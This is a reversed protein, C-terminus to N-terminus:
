KAAEREKQISAIPLSFLNTDDCGVITKGGNAIAIVHYPSIYHADDDTGFPWRQGNRDILLYRFGPRDGGRPQAVAFLFADSSWRVPPYDKRMQWDDIAKRPRVFRFIDRQSGSGDPVLAVYTGNGGDAYEYLHIPTTGTRVLEGGDGTFAVRESLYAGALDKKERTLLNFRFGEWTDPNGDQGQIHLRCVVYQEDPSWILDVFRDQPIIVDFRQTIEFNEDTTVLQRTDIEIGLFHDSTTSPILYDFPTVRPNNSDVQWILPIQSVTALVYKWDRTVHFYKFNRIKDYADCVITTIHSIDGSLSVYYVDFTETWPRETKQTRTVYYVGDQSRGWEIIPFEVWDISNERHFQGINTKSAPDNFDSRAARFEATTMQATATDPINALKTPPGSTVSSVWISGKSIYTIRKDDPLVAISGQDRMDWVMDPDLLTASAPLENAVAKGAMSFLAAFLLVFNRM